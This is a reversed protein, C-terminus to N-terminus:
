EYNKEEFHLFSNASKRGTLSPALNVAVLARIIDLNKGRAVFFKEGLLRIHAHTLGRVKDAESM